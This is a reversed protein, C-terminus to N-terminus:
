VIKKQTNKLCWSYSNWINAFGSILFNLFILLMAVNNEVDTILFLNVHLYNTFTIGLIVGKELIYLLTSRTFAPLINKTKIIEFHISFFKKALYPNNSKSYMCWHWPVDSLELFCFSKRMDHHGSVALTLTMM